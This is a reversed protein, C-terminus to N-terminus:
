RRPSVSAGVTNRPSQSGSRRPTTIKRPSKTAIAEKAMKMMVSPQARQSSSGSKKVLVDHMAGVVLDQTSLAVFDLQKLPACRVPSTMLKTLLENKYHPQAAIPNGFLTFSALRPLQCVVTDVDSWSSIRNGHLYLTTLPLSSLDQPLSVIANNSLDIWSITLFSNAILSRLVPVMNSVDQINANNTLRFAEAEYKCPLQEALKLIL